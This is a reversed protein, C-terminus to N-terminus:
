DEVLPVFRCGGLSQRHYRDGERTILILDQGLREGLPLVMKGGEALQEMLAPPPSSTAATIMIGQFPAEEPWGLSGDGLRFYINTYNLRSLIERAKEQLEKIREITYVTRAVQSLIAAQYGTGTGIELVKDEHTLALLETMLAVIYPQSITQGHSLELPHDGYALQRLHPSVFQHRPVERFAKIVRDSKIGRPVLQEKIMHEKMAKFDRDLM